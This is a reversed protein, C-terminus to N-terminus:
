NSPWNLAFNRRSIATLGSPIRGKLPQLLRRAFRGVYAAEVVFGGPLERTVSFDVAHTFPTKMKDDLGWGVAIAVALPGLLPWATPASQKLRTAPRTAAAGSGQNSSANEAVAVMAGLAENWVTRYIHNLSSQSAM